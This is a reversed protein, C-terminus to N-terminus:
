DRCGKRGSLVSQGVGMEKPTHEESWAACFEGYFKSIDDCSFSGILSSGGSQLLICWLLGSVQYGADTRACGGRSPAAQTHCAIFPGIDPPKGRPGTPVIM